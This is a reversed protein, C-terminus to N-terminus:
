AASRFTAEAAYVDHQLEYEKFRDQAPIHAVDNWEKMSDMMDNMAKKVAAAGDGPLQASLRMCAQVGDLVAHEFRNFMERARLGASSEPDIFLFELASLGDSDIGMNSRMQEMHMALQKAELMNRMVHMNIIRQDM